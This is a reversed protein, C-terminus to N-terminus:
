AAEDKDDDEDEVTAAAASRFKYICEIMTNVRLSAKALAEVIDESDSDMDPHDSTELIMGTLEGDELLFDNAESLFSNIKHAIKKSSWLTSGRVQDPLQNAKKKEGVLRQGKWSDMEDEAERVTIGPRERIIEAKKPHRNLM